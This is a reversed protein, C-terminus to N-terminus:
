EACMYLSQHHAAGIIPVFFFLDCNWAQLLNQDEFAGTLAQFMVWAGPWPCESQKLILCVESYSGVLFLECHKQALFSWLKRRLPTQLCRPLM